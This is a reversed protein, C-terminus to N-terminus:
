QTKFSFRLRMMQRSEMAIPLASRIIVLDCTSDFPDSSVVVTDEPETRWDFNDTAIEASIVLTPDLTTKVRKFRLAPYRTGDVDQYIFEVMGPGSLPSNPNSNVGYELLNAIGDRDPDGLPGSLAPDALQAATFRKQRWQNFRSEQVIFELMGEASKAGGAGSFGRDNAEILLPFIGVEVVNAFYVLGGAAFAAAIDAVPATVRINATDNGLVKGALAGSDALHLTGQAVILNVTIGAEGSDPDSIALGVVPGSCGAIFPPNPAATIVPAENVNIVPITFVEDYSNSSSDTARVTIRHTAAAEFDLPAGNDVVLQDLSAGALKFRGGASDVLQYTAVNGSDPDTVTFMGIVTDPPSNENVVPAAGGPGLLQIDTPGLNIANVTLTFSVPLSNASGDNATLTIKASGSAGPRPKLTMRTTAGSSSFTINEGAILELNDSVANLTVATAATDIDGVVVTVDLPTDRNTVQNPVAQIVPPDNVPNVTVTFSHSATLGGADTVTVTVLAPGSANATPTLTVTRNSGSGGFTIGALPMLIPNTTSRALALAGIATEGDSVTFALTAPTDEAMSQNAIPTLTPETNTAGDLSGTSTLIDWTVSSDGAPLGSLAYNFTQYTFGAFNLGIEETLRDEGGSGGSNHSTVIIDSLQFTVIPRMEGGDHVFSIQAHNIREGTMIRRILEPTAKDTYKVLSLDSVHTKGGSFITNTSDAGFNFALVEIEDKHKDNQSEGQIDGLKLFISISGSSTQVFWPLALAVAAAVWGLGTAANSRSTGWPQSATKVPQPIAPM